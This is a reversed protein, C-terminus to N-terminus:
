KILFILGSRYKRQICLDLVTQDKENRGAMPIVHNINEM